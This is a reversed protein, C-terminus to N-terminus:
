QEEDKVIEMIDAFDCNLTKCIRLLVDMTVNESKGLKTVYASSVDSAGRFGQKNM